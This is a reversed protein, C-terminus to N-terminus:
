SSSTYTIRLRWPAAGSAAYGYYMTSNGDGPGVSIGRFDSRGVVTKAWTTINAAWSGFGVSHESRVTMAPATGPAATQTHWGLRVTGGSNQYWHAWSSCLLEVKTVQADAPLTVPFRILSRRNGHTSSYYGQQVAGDQGSGSIQGGSGNYAQVWAANVTAVRTTATGTVTTAPSTGTSAAHTGSGAFRAQFYKTGAKVPTWDM